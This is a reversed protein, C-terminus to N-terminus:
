KSEHARAPRLTLEYSANGNANIVPGMNGRDMMNTGANINTMRCDANFTSSLLACESKVSEYIMRRADEMSKAQEDANQGAAPIRQVSIQVQVRLPAGVGDRPFFDASQGWAPASVSLGA